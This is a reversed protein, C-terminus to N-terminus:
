VTPTEKEDIGDPVELIEVSLFPTSQTKMM